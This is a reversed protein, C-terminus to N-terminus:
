SGNSNENKGVDSNPGKGRRPAEMTDLVQVFFFPINGSSEKSYILERIKKRAESNIKWIEDYVEKTISESISSFVTKDVFCSGAGVFRVLEPIHKKVLEEPLTFNKQIAHLRGGEEYILEMKLLEDIRSEIPNGMLEILQQRTTGSRNAAMKYIIYSERDGLVDSLEPKYASCKHVFSYARSLSLFIESNQDFMSMLQHISSEKKVASVVGLVTSAVPDEKTELNVIRRLTSSSIGCKKSLAHISISPYKKLYDDVLEKLEIVLRSNQKSEEM